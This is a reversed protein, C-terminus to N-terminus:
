HSMARANVHYRCRWLLQALFSKNIDFSPCGKSLPIFESHEVIDEIKTEELYELQDEKLWLRLETGRGLPEHVADPTITFTGGAASEWIYPEDDNTEEETEELELGENSMSILKKGEFEQLQTV